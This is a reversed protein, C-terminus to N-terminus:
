IPALLSPSNNRVNGVDRAVQWSTIGADPLSRLLDLPAIETPSLWRNYDDPALIVPMRNHIPAVAANAATTLITFTELVEPTTPSQWRDWLAAFAFPHAATTTIAYPQKTKADLQKWEYFGDAPVLCRQRKFPARFAPATAVTEARANFTTFSIKADKSWSPVLGWRLLALSRHGEHNL